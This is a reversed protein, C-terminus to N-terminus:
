CDEGRTAFAFYVRAGGDGFALRHTSCADDITAGIGTLGRRRSLLTVVM